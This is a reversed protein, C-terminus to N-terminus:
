GIEPTVHPSTKNSNLNGMASRLVDAVEDHGNGLALELATLEEDGHIRPGNKLFPDAGKELLLKTEHLRGSAAAIHLAAMGYQNKQDIDQEGGLSRYIFKDLEVERDSLMRFSETTVSEWSEKLTKLVTRWM